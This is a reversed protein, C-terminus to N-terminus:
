LPTSTYRTANKVKASSPLSGDAEHDPLKVAPSLTGPVWQIPPQSLRLALKALITTLFFSGVEALFQVWDDQGCGIEKCFSNCIFYM